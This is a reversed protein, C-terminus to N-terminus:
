KILEELRNVRHHLGMLQEEITPTVVEAPPESVTHRDEYKISLASLARRAMKSAQWDGKKIADVKRQNLAPWERNYAEEADDPSM